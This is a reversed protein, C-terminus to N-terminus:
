RLHAGVVRLQFQFSGSGEFVLQNLGTSNLIEYPRSGDFTKGSDAPEFCSQYNQFSSTVM